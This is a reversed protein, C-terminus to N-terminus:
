IHILSLKQAYVGPTLALTDEFNLSYRNEFQESAVVAVGGPTKRLERVAEETTPVTRTKNIELDTADIVVPPLVSEEEARIPSPCWLVLLALGLLSVNWSLIAGVWRNLFIVRSIM